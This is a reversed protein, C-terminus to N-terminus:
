TSLARLLREYSHIASTILIGLYMCSFTGDFLHSKYVALMAVPTFFVPIDSPVAECVEVGICDLGDDLDFASSAFPNLLQSPYERLVCVTSLLALTRLLFKHVDVILKSQHQM